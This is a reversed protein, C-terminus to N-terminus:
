SNSPMLSKILIGSAALGSSFKLVLSKEIENHTFNSYLEVVLAQALKIEFPLGTLPTLPQAIEIYLPLVLKDNLICSPVVKPYM